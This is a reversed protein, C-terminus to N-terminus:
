QFMYVCTYVETDNQQPHPQQGMPDKGKLVLPFGHGRRRDDLEIRLDDVTDGRALHDM